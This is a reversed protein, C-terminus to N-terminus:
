MCLLLQCGSAPAAKNAYSHIQFLHSVLQKFQEAASSQARFLFRMDELLVQRHGQRKKQKPIPTNALATDFSHM